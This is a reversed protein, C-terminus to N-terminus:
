DRDKEGRVVLVPCTAHHLVYHSVSGILVRKMLGSGHSGVVVLDFAREEAVTCITTGPDGWAVLREADIGLESLVEAVSQEAAEREQEAVEESITPDMLPAGVGAGAATVPPPVVSLVVFESDPPTLAVARRAAHLALPSGDTTLLVKPV